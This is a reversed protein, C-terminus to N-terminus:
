PGTGRALAPNTQMTKKKDRSHCLPKQIYMVRVSIFFVEKKQLKQVCTKLHLTLWFDRKISNSYQRIRSLNSLSSLGGNSSLIQKLHKCGETSFETLHPLPGLNLPLEELAGMSSNNRWYYSSMSLTATLYRLFSAWHMLHIKQLNKSIQAM